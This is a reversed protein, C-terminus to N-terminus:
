GCFQSAQFYESILPLMLRVRSRSPQDGSWLFQARRRERFCSGLLRRSTPSPGCAHRDIRHRLSSGGSLVILGGKSAHAFEVIAQEIKSADRSDVPWLEVGFSPAVSQIGGLLGTLSAAM